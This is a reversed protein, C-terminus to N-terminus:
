TFTVGELGYDANDEIVSLFDLWDQDSFIRPWFGVFLVEGTTAGTAQPCYNTGSLALAADGQAFGAVETDLLLQISSTANRPSEMKLIQVGTGIDSVNRTGGGVNDRECISTAFYTGGSNLIKLELRNSGDPWMFSAYLVNGSTASTLNLGAVVTIDDIELAAELAANIKLRQTSAGALNLRNTGTVGTPAEGSTTEVLQMTGDNTATWTHSTGNYNTTPDNFIAIAGSPLVGSGGFGGGGCAGLVGGVTFM